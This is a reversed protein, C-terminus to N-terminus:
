AAPTEPAPAPDKAPLDPKDGQFFKTKPNNRDHQLHLAHDLMEIMAEQARETAAKEVADNHKDIRDLVDQHGPSDLRMQALDYIIKFQESPLWHGVITDSGDENHRWVELRRGTKGTKRNTLVGIGLWLNPDGTWMIGDGQQLKRVLDQYEPAVVGGDPTHLM